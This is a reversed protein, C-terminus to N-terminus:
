NGVYSEAELEQVHICGYWPVDLLTMDTPRIPGFSDMVTSFTILSRLKSFTTCAMIGTESCAKGLTDNSIALHSLSDLISPQITEFMVEFYNNHENWESGPAYRFEGAREESLYLTDLHIDIYIVANLVSDKFLPSYLKLAEHRSDLSTHLAVPAPTCSVARSALANYHLEVTRPGPLSLIWIKFRLEAPLNSFIHFETAPVAKPLSLSGFEINPPYQSNVAFAAGYPQFPQVLSLSSMSQSTTVLEVLKQRVLALDRSPKPESANARLSFARPEFEAADARLRSRVM